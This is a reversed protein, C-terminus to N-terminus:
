FKGDELYHCSALTFKRLLGAPFILLLFIHELLQQMTDVFSLTHGEPAELSGYKAAASDAGEALTQGPWLMKMGFGVYGIINLTLRMTDKELSEIVRGKRGEATWLGLMGTAQRISEYFVLAANKENFSASTAKRHMRWTAGECTVVNEGFM